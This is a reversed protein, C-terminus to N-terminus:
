EYEEEWEEPFDAEHDDEVGFEEANEKTFEHADYDWDIDQEFMDHAYRAAEDKDKAEVVEANNGFGNNWRAIFQTM